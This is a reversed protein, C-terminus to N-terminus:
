SDYLPMRMWRRRFVILSAGVRWHMRRSLFLVICARVGHPSAIESFLYFSDDYHLGGGSSGSSPFMYVFAMGRRAAHIYADGSSRFVLFLVLFFFARPLFRSYSFSTWPSLITKKRFPLPM